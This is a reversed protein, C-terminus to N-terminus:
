NDLLEVVSVCYSPGSKKNVRKITINYAPIIDGIEVPLFKECYATMIFTQTPYDFRLDVPIMQGFLNKLAQLPTTVIFEHTYNFQGIRREAVLANKSILSNEDFIM